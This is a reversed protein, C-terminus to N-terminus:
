KTNPLLFLRCKEWGHGLNLNIHLDVLLLWQPRCISTHPWFVFYLGEWDGSRQCQEATQRPAVPQWGESQPCSRAGSLHDTIVLMFSLSDRAKKMRQEIGNWRNVWFYPAKTKKRVLNVKNGKGTIRTEWDALLERSYNLNTEVAVKRRRTNGHALQQSTAIGTTFCGQRRNEGPCICQLTKIM